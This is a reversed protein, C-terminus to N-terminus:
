ALVLTKRKRSGIFRFTSSEVVEQARHRGTHWRAEQWSILPSVESV